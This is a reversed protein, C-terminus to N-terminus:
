MLPDDLSTAAPFLLRPNIATNYHAGHAAAENIGRWVSGDYVNHCNL